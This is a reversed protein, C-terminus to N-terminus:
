ILRSLMSNDFNKDVHNMFCEIPTHYNISKRPISNRQLAVDSIQELSVLNFDIEKPLGSKRLLGNSHENLGRQSPTGPDALYIDIDQKNSITKGNSFEKGCAFIISKLLHKPL